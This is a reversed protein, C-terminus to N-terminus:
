SIAPKFLVTADCLVRVCGWNNFWTYLCIKRRGSQLWGAAGQHLPVNAKVRATSFLNGCCSFLVGESPSELGLGCFRAGKLQEDYM